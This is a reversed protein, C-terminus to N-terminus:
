SKLPRIWLARSFCIRDTNYNQLKRMSSWRFTTSESKHTQLWCACVTVLPSSSFISQRQHHRSEHMGLGGLWVLRDRQCVHRYKWRDYQEEVKKIHDSTIRTEQPHGFNETSGHPCLVHASCPDISKKQTSVSLHPQVTPVRRQMSVSCTVRHSISISGSGKGILTACYRPCGSPPTPTSFSESCGLRSLQRM